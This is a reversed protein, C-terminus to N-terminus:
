SATSLSRGVLESSTVWADRQLYRMATLAADHASPSSGGVCDTVVRVFFDRQHGDVFTYHVCVDTLGGVLVITTIGMGRLVIELDTGFFVSYRRKQIFHEDPRPQLEAVIETGPVGLVCHVGESGDLERGIDALDPRHVEQSWIVPLRQARFADVLGAIRAVRDDYGTMMAIGAEDYPQRGCEQVDIVLLATGPSMVSTVDQEKEDTIV